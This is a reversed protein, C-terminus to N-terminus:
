LRLFIGEAFNFFGEAGGRNKAVRIRLLLECYGSISGKNSSSSYQELFIIVSVVM